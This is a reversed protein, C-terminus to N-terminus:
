THTYVIIRCSVYASHICQSSHDCPTGISDHVERHADRLLELELATKYLIEAQVEFRIAARGTNGLGGTESAATASAAELKERLSQVEREHQERQERARDREKVLEEQLAALSAAGHPEMVRECTAVM